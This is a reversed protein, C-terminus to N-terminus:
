SRSGTVSKCEEVGRVTEERAGAVIATSDPDTAADDARADGGDETEALAVMDFGDNDNGLTVDNITFAWVRRM